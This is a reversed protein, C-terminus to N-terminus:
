RIELLKLPGAPKRISAVLHTTEEVTFRGEIVGGGILKVSLTPASRVRDEIVIGLRRRQNSATLVELDSSRADSTEFGLAAYGYDDLNAYVRAFGAAGFCAEPRDPLLLAEPRGATGGYLTESWLLRRHPGEPAALTHFLALPQSPNAQRWTDLKEQERALDIADKEGEAFFLFECVGVSQLMEGFLERERPQIQPMTLEIRSTAPETQIRPAREMAEFRRRVLSATSEVAQADSADKAVWGLAAARAVDVELVYTVSRVGRARQGDQAACDSAVVGAAILALSCLFRKM